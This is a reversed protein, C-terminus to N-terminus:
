EITSHDITCRCIPCRDCRVVCKKCIFHYCEPIILQNPEIEVLCVPCEQKKNTAMYQELIVRHSRNKQNNIKENLASISTNLTFITNQQNEANGALYLRERELKDIIQELQEINYHPVPYPHYNNAHYIEILIHISEESDHMNAVSVFSLVAHSKSDYLTYPKFFRHFHQVIDAGTGLYHSQQIKKVESSENLRVNMTALVHYRPITLHYNQISATEALCVDEISVSINELTWDIDWMKDIEDVPVVRNMQIHQMWKGIAYKFKEDRSYKAAEM